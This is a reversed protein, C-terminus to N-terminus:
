RGGGDDEHPAHFVVQRQLRGAINPRMEKSERINASARAAALTREWREKGLPHFIRRLEQLTLGDRDSVAVAREILPGAEAVGLPLAPSVREAVKAEALRRVREDIDDINAEALRGRFNYAREVYMQIEATTSLEEFTTM